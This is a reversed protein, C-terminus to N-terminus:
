ESDESFTLLLSNQRNRGDDGQGGTHDDQRISQDNECRVEAGSQETGTQDENGL